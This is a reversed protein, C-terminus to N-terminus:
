VEFSGNSISHYLVILDDVLNPWSFQHAVFDRGRNGRRKREDDNSLAETLVHSLSDPELDTVWGSGTREIDPALNVQQSIVAPVGCALAEAVCLGFNEQSSTLALLAANQLASIKEEGDLWGTFLVHNNGERERVVKRLSNVYEAEGDGAIVLRWAEFEPQKVLRLFVELLLELNKKPHLRSLFLIYPNKDISSFRRPFIEEVARDQLKGTEIGLPIVVGHNLGLSREALQQEEVTTYHIAAADHMARRAALQWMLRKRFSKQRLSWPDLTGLPRIIYPVHHKRSARAASLCAHSFVAHIHVVDFHKVNENLWHSLPQSYKFAESWQRSFFITPVDQYRLPAGLEVDLRSEGDANTTAVLLEVGKEQLANCMEFIAKSPGGYRPAVSPIVHLVKVM